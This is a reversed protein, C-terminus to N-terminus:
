LEISEQHLVLDVLEPTKNHQIELNELRDILTFSGSGSDRMLSLLLFLAHPLWFRM